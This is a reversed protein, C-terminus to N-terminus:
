RGQIMARARERLRGLPTPFHLTGGLIQSRLALQESVPTGLAIRWAPNTSLQYKLWAPDVTHVGVQRLRMSLLHENIIALAKRRFTPLTQTTREFRSHWAGHGLGPGNLWDIIYKQYRPSLPARPLFPADPDESFFLREEAAGLFPTLMGLAAPSLFFFCTRVWAASEYRLLQVPEPYSDIHGLCFHRAACLRLQAMDIHNLYGNYPVRFADTAFHVLDAAAIRSHHERLAKDWASFESCRNDGDFFHVQSALRHAVKEPKAPLKNDLVLVELHSGPPLTREHYALFDELAGQYKQTGYRVFLAVIRLKAHLM